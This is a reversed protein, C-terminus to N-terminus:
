CPFIHCTLLYPKESRPAKLLVPTGDALYVKETQINFPKDCQATRKSQRSSDTGLTLIYKRTTDKSFITKLPLALDIKLM